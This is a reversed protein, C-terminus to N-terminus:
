LGWFVSEADEVVRGSDLIQTLVIVDSAAIAYYQTLALALGEQLRIIASSSWISPLYLTAVVAYPQGQQHAKILNVTMHDASQRSARSWQAILDGQGDPCSPSIVCNAIPM